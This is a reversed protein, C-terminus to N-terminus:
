MRGVEAVITPTEIVMMPITRRMSVRAPTAVIMSLRAETTETRQQASHEGVKGKARRAAERQFSASIDQEKGPEHEEDCAAEHERPPEPSERSREM